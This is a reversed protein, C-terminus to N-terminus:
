LELRGQITDDQRANSTLNNSVLQLFEQQSSLAQELLNRRYLSVYLALSYAQCNISREPNFEIDTFASYTLLQESLHPQKYLANIYLWDYFATQPELGWDYGFFRFGILRGSSRLREDKKAERSTMEFIDTFPGGHEFVKSGQFACEVSFTRQHRLTTFTLNFASLAVGLENRSKSSVELINEGGRISSAAMHLSDISKQKQSVSMGPFWKFTVHETRVLTNGEMSPIFLPREAM